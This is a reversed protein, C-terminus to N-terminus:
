SKGDSMSKYAQLGRSLVDMAQRLTQVNAVYAIRIEDKGAGPTLYFDEAPTVLVTKKQHRFTTIMFRVFAEADDIPLKAMVYLAGQPKKCVVGPIRRLAAYVVDRRRCYEATIPRTFTKPRSLLPILAHQELTPASLRIMALKLITQMVSANQSVVAGIRAGPCSFRKSVSDVVIVNQELGPYKLFTRPHGSFIIERYTEDAIIFLKYRRAVNALRQFEAATLTTGTPNNPNIVVIAKTKKSIKKVIEREAPLQFNDEVRLRVPILLVGCMAAFGIYSTYLPEFVIMEDGPDTVALMALLIAEAGGVTPIIQEPKLKVGFTAYYRIWARVHQPIGSSPAYGIRGAPLTRLTRWFTTPAPIDSDGVNLRFVQVGTIEAATVLPLFKRIPSAIVKQTRRSLSLM